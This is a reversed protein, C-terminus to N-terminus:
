LRNCFAVSVPPNKMLSHEGAVLALGQKIVACSVGVDGQGPARFVWGPAGPGLSSCLVEWCGTGRALWEGYSGLPSESLLALPGPTSPRSPCARSLGHAPPGERGGRPGQRVQVGGQM